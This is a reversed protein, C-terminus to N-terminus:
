MGDDIPPNDLRVWTGKPAAGTVMAQYRQGIKDYLVMAAASKQVRRTVRNAADEKETCNRAIAELQKDTYSAKSGAFHSKLLRQMILDPYRRNPATTHAYDHLALDFHGPSPRDPYGVVYEGRGILKIIALSLDPFTEPNAQQQKILFVQLAKVDPEEPLVTGLGKALAVIRDWRDPTRVIRRLTPLNHRTLHLTVGVNAAIMFNEILENARNPIAEKLGVPLDDVIIPKVEVNSFTLAGQKLRFAKIRQAVADQLKIQEELGPLNLTPHPTAVKGDIWDGVRNYTLKAQNHVLAPYVDKPLFEGTGDVEMEVVVSNRDSNPNLSTLDTSLRFPLMPFVRTPTYVSTTNHAAREDIASGDHVLGSVDAISIYIRVKDGEGKEAYTLQDLDQSDDNDISFWLKQRMDRLAPNSPPPSLAGVEQKIKDTFDPEFGRDLMARHAIDGLCFGGKCVDQQQNDETM